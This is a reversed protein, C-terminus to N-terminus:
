NSRPPCLCRSRLCVDFVSRRVRHYHCVVVRMCLMVERHQRAANCHKAVTASGTALQKHADMEELALQLRMQCEARTLEESELARSLTQVEVELRERLTAREYEVGQRECQREELVENRKDLEQAENELRRVEEQLISLQSQIRKNCDKEDRLQEEHKAQQERAEESLTQAVELRKQTRANDEQLDKYDRADKAAKEQQQLLKQNLLAM